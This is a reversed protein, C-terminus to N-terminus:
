FSTSERRNIIFEAPPNCDVTATELRLETRRFVEYVSPIALRLIAELVIANEATVSMPWSIKYKQAAKKYPM